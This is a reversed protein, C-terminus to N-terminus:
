VNMFNENVRMGIKKNNAASEQAPIVWQQIFDEEWNKRWLWHAPIGDGEQAIRYIINGYSIDLDTLRIYNADVASIFSDKFAFFFRNVERDPSSQLLGHQVCIKRMRTLVVRVANRLTNEALRLDEIQKCIQKYTWISISMDVVPELFENIAKHKKAEDLM